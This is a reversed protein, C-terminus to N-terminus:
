RHYWFHGRREDLKRGNSTRAWAIAMGNRCDKLQQKKWPCWNSDISHELPCPLQPGDILIKSKWFVRRYALRLRRGEITRRQESTFAKKTDSVISLSSYPTTTLETTCFYLILTRTVHNEWKKTEGPSTKIAKRNWRWGISVSSTVEDGPLWTIIQFNEKESINKPGRNPQKVGKLKREHFCVCVYESSVNQGCNGSLRWFVWEGHCRAKGRCVLSIRFCCQMVTKSLVIVIM